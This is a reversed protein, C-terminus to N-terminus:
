HQISTPNEHTKRRKDLTKNEVTQDSKAGVEFLDLAYCYLTDYASSPKMVKRVEEIANVMIAKIEPM